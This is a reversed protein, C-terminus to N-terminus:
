PPAATAPGAAHGRVPSGLQRALQGEIRELWRRMYDAAPGVTDFHVPLGMLKAVSVWEGRVEIELAPNLVYYGHAARFFLGRNCPGSGTVENRALVSSVYARRRRHEPLVGAPFSELVTALVPAKFAPYAQAVLASAVMRRYLVLCLNLLFWEMSSPDLKSMRGGVKVKIPATALRQYVAALEGPKVGRGDLWSAIAVRLATRGATDRLEPDAGKALLDEVM